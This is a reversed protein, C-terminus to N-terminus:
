RKRSLFILVSIVVIIIVIVIIYLTNSQQIQSATQTITPSTPSSPAGVILTITATNGPFSDPGSGVLHITVTYTGRPTNSSTKIILHATGQYGNNYPIESPSFSANTNPPLGTASFKETGYNINLTTSVSITINASEGPEITITAPNPDLKACFAQVSIASLILIQSLLLLTLLTLRIFFLSRNNLKQKIM